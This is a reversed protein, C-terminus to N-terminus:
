RVVIIFGPFPHENDRFRCTRVNGSVSVHVYRFTHEIESGDARFFQLQPNGTYEVQVQCEGTYGDGTGYDGERICLVTGPECSLSGGATTGSALFVTGSRLDVPYALASTVRMTGSGTKRVSQLEFDAISDGNAFTTSGQAVDVVGVGGDTVTADVLQVASIGASYGLVYYSSKAGVMDVCLANEGYAVGNTSYTCDGWYNTSAVSYAMREGEDDWYAYLDSNVRVSQFANGDNVSTRGTSQAGSFYLIAKYQFFPVDAFKLLTDSSTGDKKSLWMRMFDPSYVLSVNSNADFGNNPVYGEFSLTANGDTAVATVSADWYNALTFTGINNMSKDADNWAAAPLWGCLTPVPNHASGIHGVHSPGQCVNFSIVNSTPRAGDEPGGWYDYEGEDVIQVAAVGEDNALYYVELSSGSLGSVRLANGGLAVGTRCLTCDGWWDSDSGQITAEGDADWTYWKGNVRVPRFAKPNDARNDKEIGAFYIVLTFTDYPISSFNMTAAKQEHNRQALFMRLYDPTFVRSSDGNTDYAYNNIQPMNISLGVAQEGVTNQHPGDWATTATCSYSGGNNGDICCWASAPVDGVLTPYSVNSEVDIHGVSSSGQCINFSIVSKEPYSPDAFASVTAAFSLAATAFLTQKM